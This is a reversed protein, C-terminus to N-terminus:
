RQSMGTIRLRKCLFATEKLAEFEPADRFFETVKIPLGDFLADTERSDRQLLDFYDTLTETKQVAM